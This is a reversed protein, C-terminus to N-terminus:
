KKPPGVPLPVDYLADQINKGLREETNKTMNRARIFRVFALVAGTRADVIGVEGRFESLGGVGVMTMAQRARSASTGDGRLFVLIDAATGPGFKAVGDGLTFGDKDVRPPKRRIQVAVNDYRAQLDALAYRAADDAAASRPDPLVEVGRARLQECVALFLKEAIQDGEPIGGESGKIGRKDFRVQAPMVLAKRIAVQGSALKGSVRPREAPYKPWEVAGATWLGAVLFSTGLRKV